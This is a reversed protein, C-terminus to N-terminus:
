LGDAVASAFDSTSSSGGIDYTRIKGASLVNEISSILANAIDGRDLYDFMLKAALLTATPNVVDKDAYKPASGHVPEFMALNDGINASPTFGLGGIIAGGIIAGAVGGFTAAAATDGEDYTVTGM